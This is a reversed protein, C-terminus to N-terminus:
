GKEGADKARLQAIADNLEGNTEIARRLKPCGDPVHGREDAADYDNAAIYAEIALRGIEALAERSRLAQEIEDLAKSASPMSMRIGYDDVLSRLEALAAEEEPTYTM